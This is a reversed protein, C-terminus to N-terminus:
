DGILILPEFLKKIIAKDCVVHIVYRDSYVHMLGDIQTSRREMNKQMQLGKICM